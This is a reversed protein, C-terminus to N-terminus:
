MEGRKKWLWPINEGKERLRRLDDQCLADRPSIEVWGEQPVSVGARSFWSRYLRSLDERVPEPEKKLTTFVEERSAEVVVPNRAYPLLDFIFREPKIAFLEGDVTTIKKLPVHFPLFDDKERMQLAMRRLFDVQILHIGISGAWFLLKGAADRQVALSEPFDLYEVVCVRGDERQVLNGVRELPEMKEVAVSTMESEARLHFDVLQEQGVPVLPNDVHFTQLTEVGLSKMREYMGHELLASILGGHGDPGFFLRQPSALFLTGDEACLAPMEGQPFITISSAPYGFYRNQALYEVTEEHTVRSTMVFLPLPNGYHKWLRCLKEFHIQFLSKGSVPAIPFTGKPLDHGLRSGMGGALLLLGLKGSAIYAEAKRSFGFWRGTELRELRQTLPLIKPLPTKQEAQFQRFIKELLNPDIRALDHRLTAPIETNEALEAFRHSPNFQRLLSRARELSSVPM